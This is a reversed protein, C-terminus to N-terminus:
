DLQNEAIEIKIRPHTRSEVIGPSDFRMGGKASEGRQCLYGNCSGEALSAALERKLTWWRGVVIM